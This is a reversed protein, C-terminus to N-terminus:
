APILPAAAHDAPRLFVWRKYSWFRFATGMAIGVLNAINLSLLDTRDLGYRAAAIVVLGVGLAVANLGFFVVYERRFKNRARHAFTWHRHMFYASTASISTALVKSTLAGLDFVQTFVNFLAIDLGLNVLGVAGFLSLERVLLRWTARVEDALRRWVGM